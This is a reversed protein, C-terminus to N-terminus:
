RATLVDAICWVPDDVGNDTNDMRVLYFVMDISSDVMQGTNSVRISRELHVQVACCNENYSIYNTVAENSYGLLTHKEIFNRDRDSDLVQQWLMSGDILVAQIEELTADRLSYNCWLTALRIAEEEIDGPVPSPNYDEPLEVSEAAEFAVPQGLNDLIEVQPLALLGEVTYTVMGPMDTYDAFYRFTDIAEPGATMYESGVEIGNVVVTFGEPVRWSRSFSDYEFEASGGGYVWRTITLLGLRTEEDASVVSFEGMELGNCYLAYSHGEKDYGPLQRCSLQGESLVQYHLALLAEGDDFPTAEPASAPLLEMLEQPAADNLRAMIGDVAPDLQAEEYLIFSEECYGLFKYAFVALAAILLVYFVIFGIRGLKYLKKLGPADVQELYDKWRLKQIRNKKM